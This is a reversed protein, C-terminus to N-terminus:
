AYVPLGNNPMWLHRSHRLQLEPHPLGWADASAEGSPSMLSGGEGAPQENVDGLLASCRDAAASDFFVLIATGKRAFLVAM